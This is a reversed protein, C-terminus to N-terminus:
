KYRKGKSNFIDTEYHMIDESIILTVIWTCAIIALWTKVSLPRKFLWFDLSVLFAGLLVGLIGQVKRKKGFRLWIVSAILMLNGLTASATELCRILWKM